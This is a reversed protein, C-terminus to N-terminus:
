VYLLVFLLFVFRDMNIVRVGERTRKQNKLKRSPPVEDRGRTRKEKKNKVLFPKLDFDVRLFAVEVRHFCNIHPPFVCNSDALETNSM